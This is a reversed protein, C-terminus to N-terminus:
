NATEDNAIEPKPSACPSAAAETKRKKPESEKVELKRELKRIQKYAEDLCQELEDNETQLQRLTETWAKRRTEVEKLKRDLEMQTQDRLQEEMEYLMRSAERHEQRTKDILKKLYVYPPVPDSSM